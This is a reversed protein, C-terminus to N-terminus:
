DEAVRLLLNKWLRRRGLNGCSFSFFLGHEACANGDVRRESVADVAELKGSMDVLDLCVKFIAM